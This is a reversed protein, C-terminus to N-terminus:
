SSANASGKGRGRGRGRGGGRGRGRTPTSRPEQPAQPELNVTASETPSPQEVPQRPPAPRQKQKQKQKQTKSQSKPLPSPEPLQFDSEDGNRSLQPTPPPTFGGFRMLLKMIDDFKETDKHGNKRQKKLVTERGVVTTIWAWAANIDQDSALGKDLIMWVVEPEASELALM